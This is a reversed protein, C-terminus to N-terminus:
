RRDVSYRGPGFGFVLLFAALIGLNKMFNIEQMMKEAAPVSWFNHFIPTIVILYVIFGLAACRTQWGVLILLGLGLEVVISIVAAVEPMPVGAGHIYGVIGSFETIRSFGSPVFVVALLIRGLLAAVDSKANM